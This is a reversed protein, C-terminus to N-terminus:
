KTSSIDPWSHNDPDRVDEGFAIINAATIVLLDRIRGPLFEPHTLADHLISRASEEPSLWQKDNQIMRLADPCDSFIRLLQRKGRSSRVITAVHDYFNNPVFGWVHVEPAIIVSKGERRALLSLAYDESSTFPVGGIQQLFDNDFGLFWGILKNQRQRLIGTDQEPVHRVFGSHPRKVGHLEGTIVAAPSVATIIHKWALGFMTRIADPEPFVNADHTMLIRNGISQSVYSALTLANAKGADPIDIHVLQMAGKRAKPARITQGTVPYVYTVEGGSSWQEMFSHIIQQSSDTCANTIFVITAPVSEPIDSLLVADLFSPLSHEENHIPIALTFSSEAAPVGTTEKWRKEQATQCADPTHISDLPLSEIARSRWSQPQIRSTYTWDHSDPQSELTTM